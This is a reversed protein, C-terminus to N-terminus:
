ATEMGMEREEGRSFETFMFFVSALATVAMYVILVTTGVPWIGKLGFWDGTLLIIAIGAAAQIITALVGYAKKDMLSTYAFISLLLFGGFMLTEPYPIRGMRYFFFCLLVLCSLMQLMSWVMFGVSYVPDFKEFEDMAKVYTVPYKEIM